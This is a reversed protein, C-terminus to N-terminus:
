GIVAKVTVGTLISLLGDVDPDTVILCFKYEVGLKGNPPGNIDPKDQQNIDLDTTFSL